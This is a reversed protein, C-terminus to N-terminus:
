CNLKYFHEYNKDNHATLLMIADRYHNYTLLAVIGHENSNEFMDIIKDIKKQYFIRKKDTEWRGSVYKYYYKQAKLILKIENIM